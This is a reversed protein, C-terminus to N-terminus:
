DPSLLRIMVVAQNEDNWWGLPEWVPEFGCSRYFRRTGAYGDDVGPDDPTAESLTTVVLHRVRPDLRGILEEILLRGLGSRRRRADVAMWTIEASREYWCRFTLFGAVDGDVEAVLGPGTRVAAACQRRGGEDGFHYPLGLVIRDCAEADAPTLPRVTSPAFM